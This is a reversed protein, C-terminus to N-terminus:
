GPRRRGECRDDRERREAEHKRGERRARWARLERRRLEGECADGRHREVCEEHEHLVDAVAVESIM